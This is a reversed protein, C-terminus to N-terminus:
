CESSTPRPPIEPLETYRSESKIVPVIDDLISATHKLGCEWIVLVRWGSDLLKQKQIEDRRRNGELKQM